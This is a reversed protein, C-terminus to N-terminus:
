LKGKQYLVKIKLQTFAQVWSLFENKQKTELLLARDIITANSYKKQKKKSLQNKDITMVLKLRYRVHKDNSHTTGYHLIARDDFTYSQLVVNSLPSKTYAITKDSYLVFWRQKWSSQVGQKMLYGEKLVNNLFTFSIDGKVANYDSLSPPSPDAQTFYKLPTTPQSTQSPTKSHKPTELVM